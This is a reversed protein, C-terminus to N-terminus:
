SSEMTALFGQAERISTELSKQLAAVSQEIGSMSQALSGVAAANLNHKLFLVHDNLLKLAPEMRSRSEVMSAHARDYRAKTEGLKQKSSSKLEASQMQGIEEEWEEFLDGAVDEIEGIRSDIAAASSAAGDYASKLRDYEAELNGGQFGSLAKVRDLASTFTEGAEQQDEVMSSLSSRLLDRKERGVMEWASYYISSCGALPAAAGFALVLALLASPRSM